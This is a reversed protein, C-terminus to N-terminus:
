GYVAMLIVLAVAKLILGAIACNKGAKVRKYYKEAYLSPHKEYEAIQPNAKIITAVALLVGIFTVFLISLIGTALVGSPDKLRGTGQKGNQDLIESEEM